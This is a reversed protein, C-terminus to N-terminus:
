KLNQKVKLSDPLISLIMGVSVKVYQYLFLNLQIINEFVVKM